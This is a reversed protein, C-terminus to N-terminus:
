AMNIRARTSWKSYVAEYESICVFCVKVLNKDIIKFTEEKTSGNQTVYFLSQSDPILRTFITIARQQGPCGTLVGASELDDPLHM